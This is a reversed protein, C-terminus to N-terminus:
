RVQEEQVEAIREKIDQLAKDIDTYEVDVGSAREEENDKKVFDEMLREFRDRVSRNTTKFGMEKINNLNESVERWANGREKTGPRFKYPEVTSIEALLIEDHCRKFTFVERKGLTKSGASLSMEYGSFSCFYLLFSEKYESFSSFLM